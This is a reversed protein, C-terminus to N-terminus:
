KYSYLTNELLSHGMAAANEIRTRKDLSQNYTAYLERINKATYRHNYIKEFTNSIFSSLQKNNGFLYTANIDIYPIIADDLKMDYYQKNKTNYIYIHKDYYYNFKKDINEDPICHHIKTHQFDHARRTPHLMLLLVILKQKDTLDPTEEIKKLIDNKNFSLGDIISKDITKDIRSNNYNETYLLYYPYLKKIITSCGKIHTFISYIHNLRTKFRVVIDQIYRNDNLYKFMTIINKYNYPLSKISKIIDDDDTLEYKTYFKHISKITNCYSKISGDTMDKYKTIARYPRKTIPKLINDPKLFDGNFFKNDNLGNKIRIRERYRRQIETRTLPM